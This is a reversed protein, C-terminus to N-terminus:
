FQSKHPRVRNKTQRRQSSPASRRGGGKDVRYGAPEEGVGPGGHEESPPPLVRFGLRAAAKAQDRDLTLFPLQDADGALYLACALHWLDAGHLYVGTSMLRATERALNREPNVWEISALAAKV